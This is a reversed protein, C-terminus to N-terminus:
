TERRVRALVACCKRYAEVSNRSRAPGSAEAEVVAQVQHLRPAAIGRGCSKKWEAFCVALVDSGRINRRLLNVFGAASEKGLVADGHEWALQEEPPPMFPVSNRWIYLAALLLLALFVGHLRYQRALTALGPAEEVGLHTEEFIVRRAPGVLWALLAPERHQRLAENSFLYSDTLLVMSGGGLRREMAVPRERERVYVARWVPDNTEFYSASHWEVSEPVPAVTKRKATIPKYTGREDRGAPAYQVDFKWRETIAVRRLGPLDSEERSLRRTRKRPPANTGQGDKASISNTGRARPKREAEDEFFWLTPKRFRPFLSIVLRGGEGVFRELEQFDDEPLRLEHLNAGLYFLTADRGEGLKALSQYHRRAPVLRDLSEYFAKAGLPDARLSSYEPFVDGAEFRLHFLHLLGALFAAVGLLLLIVPLRKM